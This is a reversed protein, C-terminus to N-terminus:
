SGGGGGDSCGGGGDGGHAGGHASGCDAGGHSGGDSAGYMVPATYLFSNDTAGARTKPAPAQGSVPFRRRYEGVGSRNRLFYHLAAFAGLVLAGILLIVFFPDM